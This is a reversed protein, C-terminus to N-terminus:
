PDQYPEAYCWDPGFPESDPSQHFWLFFAAFAIAPSLAAVMAGGIPSVRARLVLGLGLGLALSIALVLLALGSGAIGAGVGSICTIFLHHVGFGAILAGLPLLTWFLWVIVKGWVVRM